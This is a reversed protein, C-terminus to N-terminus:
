IAMLWPRTSKPREWECILCILEDDKHVPIIRATWSVDKSTYAEHCLRIDRATVATEIAHVLPIRDFRETPSRRYLAVFLDNDIFEDSKRGWANLLGASIRVIRYSPLVVLAPVPLFNFIESMAFAKTDLPKAAANM